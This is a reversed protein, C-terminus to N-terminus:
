QAGVSVWTAGGGTGAVTCIKLVGATTVYMDGVLSAGSPAADQPVVRLAAKVPSTTDATIVAGYGTAGGNAAVGTGSGTGTGQVGNGNTAGGQGFVGTGSTGGGLGWLGDATGSGTAKLGTTSTSVITGGGPGIATALAQLFLNLTTGWEAEGPSPISYVTGNFTVSISM